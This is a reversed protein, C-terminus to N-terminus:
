DRPMACSSKPARLLLLKDRASFRLSGLSAAVTTHLSAAVSFSDRLINSRPDILNGLGAAACASHNWDISRQPPVFVEPIVAAIAQRMPAIPPAGALHLARFADDQYTSSPAVGVRAGSLAAMPVFSGPEQGYVTEFSRFIQALRDLSNLDNPHGGLLCTYRAGECWTLIEPHRFENHHLLVYVHEYSNHVDFEIELKRLWNSPNTPLMGRASHAPVLLISNSLRKVNPSRAYLFPLGIALSDYGNEALIAADAETAVLNLRKPHARQALLRIFHDEGQPVWGHVWTLSRPLRWRFRNRDASLHRSLCWSAGYLEGPALPTRAVRISPLSSEPMQTM